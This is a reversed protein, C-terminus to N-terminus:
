ADSFIRDREKRKKKKRKKRKEKEKTENKEGKVRSHFFSSSYYTDLLLPGSGHM